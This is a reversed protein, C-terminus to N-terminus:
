SELKESAAVKGRTWYGAAKTWALPHQMEQLVHRRLARAVGTESAIWIFGDGTPPTHRALAELIASTEDSPMSTRHVWMAQHSARTVFQQEDDKDTVVVITTVPTGAPLAEVRRGIAPLATEDGILLWWDFDDPLLTSGRPGGVLLTQGPQAQRAWDTAPGADHLAFDLTLEGAQADHHRPTYDRGEPGSPGPIFIKVHDDFSPSSFGKIEDGGLTVRQMHPTLRETRLVSLTRRVLEHKVRVIEHKM